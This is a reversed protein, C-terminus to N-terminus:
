LINKEMLKGWFDGFIVGKDLDLWVKFLTVNKRKGM